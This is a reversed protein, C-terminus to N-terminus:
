DIQGELERLRDKIVVEALDPIVEWAVERVVGEGILEAVRRAIREVDADDLGVSGGGQAPAPGESAPPSPAQEAARDIAEEASVTGATALPRDAVTPDDDEEEEAGIRFPEGEEGAVVAFPSAPEPEGAAAPEEDGGWGPTELDSDAVEAAPEPGTEPEVEPEPEPVSFRFVEGVGTQSSPRPEDLHFPEEAAPAPQESTLDFTVPRQEAAPPESEEPEAPPEAEATAPTSPPAPPPAPPAAEVAVPAAPEAPPEVSPAADSAQAPEPEADLAEPEAAASAEGGTALLRGVLELLEQSDFPKKLHADAGSAEAEDEDFLEFTGVLLVVPV